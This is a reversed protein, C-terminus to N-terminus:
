WLGGSTNAFFWLALGGVIGVIGIAAAGIWSIVAGFILAGGFGAAMLPWGNNRTGKDTNILFLIGFAMCGALVAGLIVYAQDSM